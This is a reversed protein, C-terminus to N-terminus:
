KGCDTRHLVVRRNHARGEVTKNDAVPNSEGYGKVALRGQSVGHSTIYDAVSQARRESLGQNYAASGTSDTYGDVEGVVFHLRTMNAIVRDLLEKDQDTLTSSNTAFHVEQSVDCPCGYKDVAVGPPTDPCLSVPKPPPPPPPPPPAPRPPPPPAVYPPPPPPAAEHHGGFKYNIGVRVINATFSNHINDLEFASSGFAACLASGVPTCTTATNTGKGLNVHTYEARLFWSDAVAYDVGAGVGFGNSKFNKGGSFIADPTSDGAATYTASSTRSGGTLVSGIRFYPLWNDVAYGIRPGLIGFGNPSVKGTFDVTGAPILPTTSGPFAFSRNRNKASWYDYDLGFGWVINDKQFNYGIQVGGVFVGNNPCDRNNFANIVAPPIPNASNLSWTNCTSNWAGGVNVGAYFGRWDYTSSDQASAAGAISASALLAASFTSLKM